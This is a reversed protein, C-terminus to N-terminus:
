GMSQPNKEILSVLGDYNILPVKSDEKRYGRAFLDSDIVQINRKKIYPEIEDSIAWLVGNQILVITDNENAVEIKKKRGLYKEIELEAKKIRNETSRAKDLISNANTIRENLESLEVMKAQLKAEKLDLSDWQRDCAQCIDQHKINDIQTLIFDQKAKGKILKKEMDNIDYSGKLSLIDSLGSIQQDIEEIQVLGTSIDSRLSELSKEKNLITNKIQGLKLQANEQKAKTDHYSLLANDKAAENAIKFELAQVTNKLLEESSTLDKLKAAFNKLDNAALDINLETNKFDEMRLNLVDLEKNIDKLKDNAIKTYEDWRDLNLLSSVMKQRSSSTGNMFEFFSNQMFYSTNIFVDYNSKIIQKIKENIETNTDGKFNRESGDPLVEAFYLDNLSAHKSHISRVVKYTKDEHKFIFTAKCLSKGRKVVDAVAKQRSKGFLCFAIGELISSKGNGNFGTILASNFNFDVVSKSHSMFNELELYIPLM